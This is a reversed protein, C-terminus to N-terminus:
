GDHCSPPADAGWWRSDMWLRCNHRRGEISALYGLLKEYAQLYVGEGCYDPHILTLVM